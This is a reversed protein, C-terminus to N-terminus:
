GDLGMGELEELRAVFAPVWGLAAAVAGDNQGVLATVGDSPAPRTGGDGHIDGSGNKAATLLEAVDVGLHETIQVLEVADVRRQGSEIRSVATQGLGTLRGVADQSLGAAARAEALARGLAARSLAPKTM